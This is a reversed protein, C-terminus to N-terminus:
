RDLRKVLLPASSPCLGAAQATGLISAPAAARDVVTFGAHEFFDRASTTILYADAANASRAEDLLHDVIARGYGHRRHAPLVVISRLLAAPGYLEIGGYAVTDGGPTAFRYFIRGPLGIDGSPLGVADLAEALAPLERGQLPSAALRM